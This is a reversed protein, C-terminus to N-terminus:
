NQGNHKEEMNKTNEFFYNSGSNSHFVQVSKLNQYNNVKDSTCGSLIAM